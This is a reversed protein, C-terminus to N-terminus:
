HGTATVIANPLGFRALTPNALGRGNHDVSSNGWQQGSMPANPRVGPSGPASAARRFFSPVRVSPRFSSGSRGTASQAKASNLARFAQQRLGNAFQMPRQPIRLIASRAGEGAGLVQMAIEIGKCVTDPGGGLVEHALQIVRMSLVQHALRVALDHAQAPDDTEAATM